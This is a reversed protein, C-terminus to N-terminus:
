SAMCKKCAELLQKDGRINLYTEQQGAFSATPLDEATASSRVAVDCDEQKYYTSLEKYAQIIEQALDDTMEGSTILQRMERGVKQLTKIDQPDSLQAMIQKMQDVFKNYELYYWYAPATIAFGNPITIGKKSLEAVMQGLSANKGGVLPLDKLRLEAFKKIFKM